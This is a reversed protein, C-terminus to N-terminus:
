QVHVITKHRDCQDAFTCGHPGIDEAHMSNCEFNQHCLDIHSLKPFFTLTVEITLPCSSRLWQQSVPM